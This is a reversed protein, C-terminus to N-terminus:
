YSIEKTPCSYFVYNSKYEEETVEVSNIYYKPKNKKLWKETLVKDKNIDEETRIQVELPETYYLSINAM